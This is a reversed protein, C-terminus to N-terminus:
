SAGGVSQAAYWADRAAKQDLGRHVARVAGERDGRTGLAETLADVLETDYRELGIQIGDEVGRAYATAPHEWWDIQDYWAANVGRPALSDNTEGVTRPAARSDDGPRSKRTLTM